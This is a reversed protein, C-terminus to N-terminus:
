PADVLVGDRRLLAIRGGDDNPLFLFNNVYNFNHPLGPLKLDEPRQHQRFDFDRLPALSVATEPRMFYGSYGKDRMLEFAAAPAQRHHRAEVEVLIAPRSELLGSASELVDVEAGEVDIKVVEAKDVLRDLRTVEVEISELDFGPNAEALLSSRTDVRSDSTMPVYLRQTGKSTGVATAHVVGRKGILSRLPDALWPLPEVAVVHARRLLAAQTYLGRNAGVDVFVDGKTLLAQVLQLERETQQARRVARAWRARRPVVGRAFSRLM